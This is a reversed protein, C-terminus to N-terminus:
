PHPSLTSRVPTSLRLAAPESPGAPTAPPPVALAAGEAPPLAAAIRKELEQTARSQRLRPPLALCARAADKWAQRAEEPRGAAQLVEAQRVLWVEQRASRGALVQLRRVAEDTRGLAVELDVAELQLTVLPGLRDLGEDLGRLAAAFHAPGRRREVRARALYLDPDPTALLRLAESYDAAAEPLRGLAEHARAREAFAGALSPQRQILRTFDEIAGAAQGTDAHLRGRVWWLAELDPQIRGATALDAVANSFTGDLRHLEARRVLLPANTPSAALQDDLARIQEHLPGHAALSLSGAIGAVLGFRALGLPLRGNWGALGQRAARAPRSRCPPPVIVVPVFYSGRPHDKM